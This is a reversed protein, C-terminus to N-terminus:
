IFPAHGAEETENPEALRGYYWGTIGDRKALTGKATRRVIALRDGARVPLRYDTSDECHLGDERPRFYDTLIFLERGSTLHRVLSLEEGEELLEIGSDSWRINLPAESPEQDDLAALVPLGDYAIYDFDDGDGPHPPLILANLQGDAKLVCGGDISVIHQEKSVLPKATQYVPDYLTVPWHGVIVWKQFSRGQNVFDDNKLLTHVDMKEWGHECPIGGHVFIYEETEIVAPMSTLFALEAAFRTRVLERLAPFDQPGHLTLGGEEAMQMLLGRERWYCLVNWLLEEPWGAHEMFDITIQDCNGRLCYVTHTKSLEMLFRLTDLSRRGKELIDGIVFLIDHPTFNIKQLLGQLFDLNGHIDSVAFVRRGEGLSIRRVTAPTYRPPM